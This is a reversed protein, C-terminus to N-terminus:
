ASRPTTSPTSGADNIVLGDINGIIGDNYISPTLASTGSTTVAIGIGADIFYDKDLTINSNMMNVAVSNPNITGSAPNSVLPSAITFGAIETILGNLSIIGSPRSRPM